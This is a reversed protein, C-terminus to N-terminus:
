NCLKPYFYLQISNIVIIVKIIDKDIYEKLVNNFHEKDINHEIKSITNIKKYKRNIKMIRLFIFNYINKIKFDEQNNILNYYPLPSINHYIFLTDLFDFYYRDVLIDKTHIDRPEVNFVSVM